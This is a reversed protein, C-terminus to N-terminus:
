VCVCSVSEGIGFVVCVYMTQTDKKAGLMICSAGPPQCRSRRHAQRARPRRGTSDIKWLKLTETSSVAQGHRNIRYTAGSIFRAGDPLVALARVPGEHAKITRVQDGRWVKVTKDDSGTLVFGAPTVAM